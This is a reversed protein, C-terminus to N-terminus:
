GNIACAERERKWTTASFVAALVAAAIFIRFTAEWGYNVNDAVAGILVKSL